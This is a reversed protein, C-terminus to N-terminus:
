LAAAAKTLLHEIETPDNRDVVPFGKAWEGQWHVSIGPNAINTGDPLFIHPSMAASDTTAFRLGEFIASRYTGARLDTELQKTDVIPITNAIAVLEHHMHIPRSEAWFARRLARDYQEGALLSQGTAAQVAEFALLVSSPYHYDPGQWLQWGADPELAGLVPIESDSGHRTGPSANLLEIPFVHHRFRILDNLGLKERATFLRHIIVHAFPDILDSFIAVTGPEVTFPLPTKTTM